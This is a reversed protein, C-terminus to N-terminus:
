WLQVWCCKRYNLTLGVVNDGSQFAPALAILLDLFSSAVVLDDSYACQAPQLFDLGAPNRRIIADQLWRFAGCDLVWKGSM